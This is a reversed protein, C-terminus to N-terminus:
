QVSVIRYTTPLGGAKASWRQGALKGMLAQGLPSKPTLVVINGQADEIELGGSRPGIFYLARVGDVDLAVLATLDITEDAAYDHLQLGAYIAIADALERAQRAQGDALYSAELSRTDYKNEAKNSADTAEAHSAKAAAHLTQLSANLRQVIRTLLEAKHM